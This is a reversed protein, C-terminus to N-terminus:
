QRAFALLPAFDQNQDAVRLTAIYKKRAEGPKVLSDSGWSFRERGLKRALLDTMLRAHRGNGNPFAHIQHVLRHHFRIALEDAAYTHHETWYKTDDLLSRLLIPIETWACGINKDSNRFQGAWKWVKGFMRKHSNKLFTEELIDAHDRNFLWGEAELINSQELEDLERQLTIYDPILSHIEDPNLPTQGDSNTFKIM